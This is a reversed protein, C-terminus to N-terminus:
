TPTEMVRELGDLIMTWGAITRDGYSAWEPALDHSLTVECGDGVSRFEM